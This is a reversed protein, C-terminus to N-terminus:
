FYDDGDEYVEKEGNPKLVYWLSTVVDFVPVNADQWSRLKHGFDRALAAESANSEMEGNWQACIAM